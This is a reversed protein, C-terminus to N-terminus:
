YYILYRPNATTVYSSVLRSLLDVERHVEVMLEMSEQRHRAADHADNYASLAGLTTVSIMVLMCGLALLVTLLAKRLSLHRQRFAIDNSKWQSFVGM